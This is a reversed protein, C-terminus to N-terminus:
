RPPDAAAVQMGTAAAPSTGVQAQALMRDLRALDDEQESRMVMGAPDCTSDPQARCREDALALQAARSAIIAGRRTEFFRTRAEEDAFTAPVMTVTVEGAYRMTRATALSFVTATAGIIGNPAMRFVAPDDFPRLVTATELYGDARCRVELVAHSRTLRVTAPAPQAEAVVQDGRHVACQAGAPESALTVDGNWAPQPHAARLAANLAVTACGPLSLLVAVLAIARFCATM